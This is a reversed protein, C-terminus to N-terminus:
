IIFCCKNMVETKGVSKFKTLDSFLRNNSIYLSLMFILYERYWFNLRDSKPNYKELFGVLYSALQNQERLSM